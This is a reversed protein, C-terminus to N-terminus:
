GANVVMLVGVNIPSHERLLWAAQGTTLLTEVKAPQDDHNAKKEM